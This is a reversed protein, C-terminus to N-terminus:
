PRPTPVEFGPNPVFTDDGGPIYSTGGGNNGISGTYPNCPKFVPPLMVRGIGPILVSNDPEIAWEPIHHKMQADNGPNRPINNDRKAAVVAFVLLISIVFVRALLSSGTRSAM